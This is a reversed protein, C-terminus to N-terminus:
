ITEQDHIVFNIKTEGGNYVTDDLSYKVLPAMGRASYQLTKYLYGLFTGTYKYGRICGRIKNELDDTYGKWKMVQWRRDIWEDVIFRLWSILEQQALVNGKQGVRVLAVIIREQNRVDRPCTPVMIAYLKDKYKSLILDVETQNRYEKASKHRYRTWRKQFKRDLRATVKDWNVDDNETRVNKWLYRYVHPTETLIWTSSFTKPQKDKLCNKLIKIAENFNM